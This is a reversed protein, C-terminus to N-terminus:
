RFRNINAVFFPMLKQIYLNIFAERQEPTSTGEPNLGLENMASRAADNLAKALVRESNLALVIKLCGELAEVYKDMPEGCSQLVEDFFNGIRTFDVAIDLEKGQVPDLAYTRQFAECEYGDGLHIFFRAMNFYEVYALVRKKEPQGVVSVCHFLHTQPRNVILDTKYCFGFPPSASEDRLYTVARQCHEKSIGVESLLALASKVVSRGALPGGFQSNLQLELGEYDVSEVADLLAKNKNVNPYNKIVKNLLNRVELMSRGRIQIKTHDDADVETVTPRAPQFASDPRQIWEEGDLAKVKVNPHEGRQRKVGATTSFWLFQKALESEWNAGFKSNCPRCIFGTVSRRGGIAQPIVHEETIFEGKLPNPCLMCEMTINM